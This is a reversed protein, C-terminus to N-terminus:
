WERRPENSPCSRVSCKTTSSPPPSRASTAISRRLRIFRQQAASVPVNDRVKLLTSADILTTTFSPGSQWVPLDGAVEVIFQVDTAASNRQVTLTLYDTGSSQEISMAVLGATTSAVLPDTNLAYELLNQVGDDDPDALNGSIAPQEHERRLARCAV